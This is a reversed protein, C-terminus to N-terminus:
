NKFNAMINKVEEIKDQKLLAVMRPIFSNKYEENFTGEAQKSFSETLLTKADNEKGTQVRELIFRLFKEQRENLVM